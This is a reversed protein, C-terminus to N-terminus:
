DLDHEYVKKEIEFASLEEIELSVDPYLSSFSAVVQPILYANVTQLVGAKLHGRYLNELEDIATIAEDVENIIRKARKYLLS